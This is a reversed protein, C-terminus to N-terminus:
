SETPETTAAQADDSAAPRVLLTTLVRQDDSGGARSPLAKKLADGLGAVEKLRQFWFPAGFSLLLGTLAVGLLNRWNLGTADRYFDSKGWPEINLLALEEMPKRGELDGIDAAKQIAPERLQPNTSLESLLKPASVQFVFAVLLAWGVTMFRMSRQLRKDMAPEMAEFKGVVAQKADDALEIPAADIAKALGKPDLWSVGPGALWALLSQSKRTLLSAPTADLIKDAAKKDGECKDKVLAHLVYRLNRGRVGVVAQSIQVLATVVISLLLIITVFALVIGLVDLFSNTVVRDERVRYIGSGRV